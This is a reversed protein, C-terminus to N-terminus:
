SKGEAKVIADDAPVTRWAAELSDPIEPNNACPQAGSRRFAMAVKMKHSVAQCLADSGTNSLERAQAEDKRSCVVIVSATASLMLKLLRAMAEANGHRLFLENTLADQFVAEFHDYEM